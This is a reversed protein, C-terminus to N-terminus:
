EFQWGMIAMETMVDGVLSQYLTTESQPVGGLAPLYFNVIARYGEGPATQSDREIWIPSYADLNTDHYFNYEVIEQQLLDRIHRYDCSLRLQDLDDIVEGTDSNFPPYDRFYANIRQLVSLRLSTVFTEGRHVAMLDAQNAHIDNALTALYPEEMAILESEILQLDSKNLMETGMEENNM